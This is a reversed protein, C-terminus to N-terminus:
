ARASAGGAMGSRARRPGFIAAALVILGSVVAIMGAASVAGSLGLWMPGYGALV